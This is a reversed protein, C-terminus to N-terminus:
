NDIHINYEKQLFNKIKHYWNYRNVEPNNKCGRVISKLQELNFKKNAHTEQIFKLVYSTVRFHGSFELAFTISNMAKERFQVFNPHKLCLLYIELATTILGDENSNICLKAQRHYIFGEPKTGDLSLPIINKSRAVAIGIEQNAFGSTLFEKSLIPLVIDAKNLRKWIDDLWNSSYDLDDHGLFVEFGTYREFINAIERAIIKDKTSYSIFLRLRKM